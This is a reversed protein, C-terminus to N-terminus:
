AVKVRKSWFSKIEGMISEVIYEPYGFKKSIQANTPKNRRSACEWKRSLIFKLVENAEYSLEKDAEEYLEIREKDLNYDPSSITSEYDNKIDLNEPKCDEYLNEKNARFGFHYYDDLRGKLQTYLYTTFKVKKSDDYNQLCWSYILYGESLLEEFDVDNRKFKMKNWQELVMKYIMNKCEEFGSNNKSNKM